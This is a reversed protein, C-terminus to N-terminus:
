GKRGSPVQRTWDGREIREIWAKMDDGVKTGKVAPHDAYLRLIDCAVDDQEPLLVFAGPVVRVGGKGGRRYVTFDHRPHSPEPV